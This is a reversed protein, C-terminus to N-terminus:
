PSAAPAGTLDAVAKKRAAAFEAHDLFIPIPLGRLNNNALWTELQARRGLDPLAPAGNPGVYRGTADVVAGPHLWASIADSSNDAAFNFNRYKDIQVQAQEQKAAADAHIGSLAGTMTGAEYYAQLDVLAQGLPYKDVAQNMGAVIPVLATKRQANMQAVLANSTQQNFFNKEISVRSGTLLGSLAALATKDNRGGAIAGGIDLVLKSIDAATELEAYGVSFQQIYQTYKLNYLTLRGVIFENRRQATEPQAYYVAISTAGQYHAELDKIDAAPDFAPRPGAINFSACGGLLTALGLALLVRARRWDPFDSVIM